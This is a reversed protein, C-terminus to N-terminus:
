GYALLHVRIQHTRGTKPRAELLTYVNGDLTIEKVKKFSTQAERGEKVVAHKMTNNPNRGIPADISFTEDRVEGNVIALYTKRVRRKEFEKQLRKQMLYNKAVLIVGSTEKDLRHVIGFREVDENLGYKERGEELIGELTVKDKQSESKNVVLFAPKDFALIENDEFLIKLNSNKM